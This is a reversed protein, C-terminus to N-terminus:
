LKMGGTHNKRISDKNMRAFKMRKPVPKGSYVSFIEIDSPCNLNNSLKKKKKLTYLLIFLEILVM